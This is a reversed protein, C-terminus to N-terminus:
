FLNIFPLKNTLPDVLASFFDALDRAQKSQFAKKREKLICRTHLTSHGRTHFMYTLEEVSRGPRTWLNPNAIHPWM